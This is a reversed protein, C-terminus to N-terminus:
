YLKRGTAKFLKIRSIQYDVLATKYNTQATLLSNEADVLDTSTAIQNNYRESTERLNEDAQDITKELVDLKNLDYKLALYNQNVELEINDKLQNRQTQTQVLNQETITIQSSVNGWTWIDWSLNVGIDWSSHFKDEPPQYRQNPRNYYYNANLYIQPFYSSRSARINERSAEIRFDASKIENRNDFAEKLLKQYDGFNNTRQIEGPNIQTNEDLPLGLTKNFNSRALEISNKADVELLETNSQQVELKLVDNQTSLGNNYFNKTDDLHQKIVKLNDEIVSMIEMTKNYNWFAVQINMATENEDKQFDSEASQKLLKLSNRQAILRFGTFLPQQFSLRFNYNNLITQSLTIPQPLFPVLVTFDPVSSLRSYSAQFKLQPLFQSNVAEVSANSSIIKSNSIKLDKSNKLGLKVSEELTLRAQSFISGSFLIFIISILYKTYALNALSIKKM